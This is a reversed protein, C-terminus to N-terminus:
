RGSAVRRHNERCCKGCVPGLMREAPNMPTGCQRCKGRADFAREAIMASGASVNFGTPRQPDNM